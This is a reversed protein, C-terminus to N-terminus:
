ARPSYAEKSSTRACDSRIESCRGSVGSVKWTMSSAPGHTRTITLLASTCLGYTMDPAAIYSSFYVNVNGVRFLGPSSLLMSFIFGPTISMLVPRPSSPPAPQSHKHITYRHTHQHTIPPPPAPQGMLNVGHTSLARPKEWIKSLLASEFNNTSGTNVM